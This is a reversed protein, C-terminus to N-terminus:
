LEIGENMALRGLPTGADPGILIDIKQEGIKEDLKIKINRKDKGTLTDSLIFLDIDGGKKTDDARSGFLIIRAGPDLGHIVSKIASIEWESLRM